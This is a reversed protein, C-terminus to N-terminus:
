TLCLSRVIGSMTASMANGGIDNNGGALFLVGKDVKRQARIDFIFEPFHYREVVGGTEHALLTGQTRWLWGMQPYDLETDPDPVVGADFAEQSTVGIGLSVRQEGNPAAVTSDVYVLIRGVVRSVTKVDQDILSALLDQTLFDGGSVASLTFMRDSWARRRAM